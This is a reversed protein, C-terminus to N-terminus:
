DEIVAGTLCDVHRMPYVIDKQQGGVKGAVKAYLWGGAGRTYVIREPFGEGPNIFTYATRGEEERASDFRFAAEKKGSPIVVYYVGDARGELRLYSFDATRPPAAQQRDQAMMHSVGVMMGARPASWQEIFDYREVKGAWCGRLWGFQDLSSASAPAAPTAPAPAPAATAPPQAPEPAQAQAGTGIASLTAASAAAVLIHCFRNRRM